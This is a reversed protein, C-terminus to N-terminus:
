NKRYGIHDPNPRLTWGGAGDTVVLNKMGHADAILQYDQGADSAYTFLTVCPEDGVNVSRHIWDGPVNVAEGPGIEIARSDGDITDLLMVCRGSLCYYLEARNAIRHLHGRTVAFEDGYRGPLLTSTGITLAGPHAGLTQSEVRYVLHDGGREAVTAAYAAEDRYVGVMDSLHKTYVGTNGELSGNLSITLKAPIDHASQDPSLQSM